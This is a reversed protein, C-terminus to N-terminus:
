VNRNTQAHSINYEEPTQHPHNSFFKLPLLAPTYSKSLHPPTSLPKAKITNKFHLFNFTNHQYQKAVLARIFFSEHMLPSLLHLISLFIKKSFFQMKAIKLEGKFFKYGKDYM